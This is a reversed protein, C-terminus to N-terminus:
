VVMHPTIRELIIRLLIKSAHSVLAITCYNKCQKLKKFLRKKPLPIFVSSTWEGPWERSEWLEVCIKYMRTVAADGGEKLLATASKRSATYHIAQYVESWLPLPERTYQKVRVDKETDMYLEECYERWRQAIKAPETM